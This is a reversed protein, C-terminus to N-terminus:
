LRAHFNAGWLGVPPAILALALGYVAVAWATQTADAVFERSIDGLIPSIVLGEVGVAVVGLILGMMGTCRQTLCIADFSKM